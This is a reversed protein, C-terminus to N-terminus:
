LDEIGEERRGKKGEERRSESQSKINLFVKIRAFAFKRFSQKEHHSKKILMKFTNYAHSM